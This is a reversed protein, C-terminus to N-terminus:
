PSGSDDHFQLFVLFRKQFLYSGLVSDIGLNGFGTRGAAEGPPHEPGVM